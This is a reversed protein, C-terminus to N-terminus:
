AVAKKKFINKLIVSVFCSILIGVFLNFIFLSADVMVPYISGFEAPWMQSFSGSSDVPTVNMVYELSLVSGPILIAVAVLYAVLQALRPRVKPLLSLLNLSAKYTAIALVGWVFTFLTIHKVNFADSSFNFVFYRSFEFAEALLFSPIFLMIAIDRWKLKMDLAYVTFSCEAVISTSLCM